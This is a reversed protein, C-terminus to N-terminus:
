LMHHQTCMGMNAFYLHSKMSWILVIKIRFTWAKKYIQM